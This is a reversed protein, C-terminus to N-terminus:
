NGAPRQLHEVITRALEMGISPLAALQEVSAAKVGHVSGFARLLAKRK